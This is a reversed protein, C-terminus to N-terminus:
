PELVIPGRLSQVFKRALKRRRAASATALDVQKCKKIRKSPHRRCNRKGLNVNLTVLASTHVNGSEDLIEITVPGKVGRRFAIGLEDALDYSFLYSWIQTDSTRFEYPDTESVDGVSVRFVSRGEGSVDMGFYKTVISSTIQDTESDLEGAETITFPQAFAATAFLLTNSLLAGLTTTALSQM